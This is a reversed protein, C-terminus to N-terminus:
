TAESTAARHSRIIALDTAAVRVSGAWSGGGLIDIGPQDIPVDVPESTHNLVFLWDQRGDTRRM